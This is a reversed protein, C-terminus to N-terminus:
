TESANRTAFTSNRTDLFDASIAKSNMELGLDVIGAFGPNTGEGLQRAITSKSSLM